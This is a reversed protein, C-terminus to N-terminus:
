LNCTRIFFKDKRISFNPGRIAYLTYRIISLADAYLTYVRIIFNNYADLEAQTGEEEEQRHVM